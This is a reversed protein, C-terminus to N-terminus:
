YIVTPDDVVARIHEHDIVKCSVGGLYLDWADAYRFMVWDNEAARLGSWECNFRDYKFALPGTQLVLGVKGQFINEQQSKMPVIIGGSTRESPIYTAILLDSGAVKLGALKADLLRHVRKKFDEPGEHKGLEELHKPAVVPM